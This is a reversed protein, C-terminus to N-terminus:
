EDYDARRLALSGRNSAPIGGPVAAGHREGADIKAHKAQETGIGRQRHCQRGRIDREGRRLEDLRHQEAADDIREGARQRGADPGRGQGQRRQKAGPDREPQEDDDGARHDGPEGIPQRVLAAVQHQRIIELVHQLQRQGIVGALM